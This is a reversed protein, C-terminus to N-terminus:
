NMGIFKLCVPQDISTIQKSSNEILLGTKKNIEFVQINNSNMNAVLLYKGNPTIIFNRPHGGTPQFGVAALKGDAANIRFIAINNTNARNSAYLFKGDPSVHIDASGKGGIGASTDSAVYQVPELNGNAYHSVMVKGSLENILYAFKGNPHFTLHRPGSGPELKYAEPYGMALFPATSSTTFKHLQDTGLDAAFLYRQDPSFVACHLHPKEQRNVDPGTGEFEFVKAVPQLTGNTALPLVSVSGGPYNATVVFHGARDTSIYCPGSGNTQQTNLLKLKGAQKDFSFAYVVAEKGSSEGVSYVYCEDTSVALYSPNVAKVASVYEATGTETNLKYVYIGASSGTTYTGVLMYLMNANQKTNRKQASAPIVCAFFLIAFLNKM